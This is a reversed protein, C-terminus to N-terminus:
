KKLVKKGDILYIGTRNISNLRIGQVNYIGVVKMDSDTPIDSINTPNDIGIGVYQAQANAAKVSAIEAESSTQFLSSTGAPIAEGTPSVIVVRVGNATKHMVCQFDNRNLQMSVQSTTVGIWRIDLASIPEESQLMIRNGTAYIVNNLTGTMMWGKVLNSEDNDIFLNITAVVDQVNMLNDTYTNAAAYNFNGTQTGLIYNITHQADLVDVWGDTNADGMAWDLTARLRCYAATGSTPQAMVEAGSALTYNGNLKLLYASEDEDYVLSGM